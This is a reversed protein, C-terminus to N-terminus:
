YNQDIMLMLKKLLIIKVKEWGVNNIHAYVKITQFNPNRSMIRHDNLRSSLNQTTSGFYFYGDDVQLKYIKSDNFKNYSM